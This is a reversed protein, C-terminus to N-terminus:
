RRGKATMKKLVNRTKRPVRSKTSRQRGKRDSPMDIWWGKFGFFGKTSRKTM